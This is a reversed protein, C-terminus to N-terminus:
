VSSWYMHKNRNSAVQDQLQDMRLSSKSKCETPSYADDFNISSSSSSSNQGILARIRRAEMIRNYMRWTLQNYYELDVSGLSGSRESDAETMMIPIPLSSQRGVVRPFESRTSVETCKSHMIREKNPINVQYRKTSNM